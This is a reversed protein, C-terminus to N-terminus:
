DNLAAECGAAHMGDLSENRPYDCAGRSIGKARKQAEAGRRAGCVRARSFKM